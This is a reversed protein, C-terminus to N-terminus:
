RRGARRRRCPSTGRGRRRRRAVSGATSRSTTLTSGTGRVVPRPDPTAPSPTPRRASTAAASSSPTSSSRRSRTSRSGSTGGPALPHVEEYAAFCDAGFGGFLRMMALDFERHGGHAAPDILWSRGDGDVLRNGAWLDGHLRAPPEPPAVSRACGTPTSASSSRSPARRAAGRRRSRPSRAAGPAADRLVRGLHRVAREASRPQRDLPPGRPRLHAADSPAAGGARSRAGGDTTSRPSGARDLRARPVAAGDDGDSM